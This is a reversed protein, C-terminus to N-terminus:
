NDEHDNMVRRNFATKHIECKAENANADELLARARAEAAQARATNAQAQLEYALEQERFARARGEAVMNQYHLMQMYTSYAQESYYRVHPNETPANNAPASSVNASDDTNELSHEQPNQMPGRHLTGQLPASRNALPSPSRSDTSAQYGGDDSLAQGDRKINDYGFGIITSAREPMVEEKEGDPEKNMTSASGSAAPQQEGEAEEISPIVTDQNTQSALNKREHATATARKLDSLLLEVVAAHRGGRGDIDALRHNVQELMLEQAYGLENRTIRSLASLENLLHDSWNRPDNEIAAEDGKHAKRWAGDQKRPRINQPICDCVPRGWHEKIVRLRAERGKQRITPLDEFNKKRNKPSGNDTLMSPRSKGDAQVKSAQTIVSPANLEPVPTDPIDLQSQLIKSPPVRATSASAMNPRLHSHQPNARPVEGHRDMSAVPLPTTTSTPDQQYRNPPATDHHSGARHFKPYYGIAPLLPHGSTRVYDQQNLIHQVRLIQAQRALHQQHALAREAHSEHQIRVESDFVSNDISYNQGSTRITALVPKDNGNTAPSLRSPHSDISTADSDIPESKPRMNGFGAPM